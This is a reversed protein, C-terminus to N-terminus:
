KVIQLHPRQPAGAAEAMVHFLHTNDIIKTKPYWDNRYKTFLRGGDGLAYLRVLENTHQTTGYSVEGGPYLANLQEPLDGAGLTMAESLRMYSNSHDSTVILLTNEWDIGDGPQDVFEVAAKVAENL